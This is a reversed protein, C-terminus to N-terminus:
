AYIYVYIHMYICETPTTQIKCKLHCVAVCQFVRCCIAVCQLVSCCVAVCRLVSCCVAVCQACLSVHKLKADCITSSCSWSPTRAQRKV